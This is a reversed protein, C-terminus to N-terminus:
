PFIPTRHKAPLSHPTVSFMRWTSKRHGGGPVQSLLVHHNKSVKQEGLIGSLTRPGPCPRGRNAYMPPGPTRLNLKWVFRAQICVFGWTQEHKGSHRSLLPPAHATLELHRRVCGTACHGPHGGAGTCRRTQQQWRKCRQMKRHLKACLLPLIFSAAALVLFCLDWLSQNNQGLRVPHATGTLWTSM